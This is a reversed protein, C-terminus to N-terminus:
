FAIVAQERSGGFLSVGAGLTAVETAILLGLLYTKGALGRSGIWLVLPVRAFYADAFATFPAVHGRAVCDPHVDRVLSEGFHDHVFQWLEDDTAPPRRSGAQDAIAGALELAWLVPLRSRRSM